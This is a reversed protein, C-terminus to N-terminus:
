EYTTYYVRIVWIPFKSNLFLLFYQMWHSIDPANNVSKHPLQNHRGSISTFGVIDSFYVTCCEFSDAAVSRGMRLDDAVQKPLMATSM